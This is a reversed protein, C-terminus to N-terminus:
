IVFSIELKELTNINKANLAKRPPHLIGLPENQYIFQCSEAAFTGEKVGLRTRQEGCFNRGYRAANIEHRKEEKKQRHVSASCSLSNKRQSLCFFPLCSAPFYRMEDRPLFLLDGSLARKKHNRVRARVRERKM